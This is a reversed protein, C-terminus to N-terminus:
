PSPRPSPAPSALEERCAISIAVVTPSLRQEAGAIASQQVEVARALRDWATHGSTKGTALTRPDITTTGKEPLSLGAVGIFSGSADAGRSPAIMAGKPTEGSVPAVSGMVTSGSGFDNQMRGLDETDLAGNVVDLTKRQQAAVAAIQEKLLQAIRDDDTTAKKPFQKEDALLKDIIRLNHAMADATKRLYIQDVQVALGLGTPDTRTDDAMKLFARHGGGVLEDSKMLGLVMPAVSDRVTTCLGKSHVRGIEPLTSPGPAPAPVQATLALACLAVLALIRSPM